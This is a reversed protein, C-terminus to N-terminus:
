ALISQTLLELIDQTLLSQSQLGLVDLYARSGWFMQTLLSQSQLGLVDLYARARSGWVRLTHLSQSQLGWVQTLLSQSGTIHNVM